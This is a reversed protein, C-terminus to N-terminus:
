AAKRFLLLSQVANAPDASMVVFNAMTMPFWFDTTDLEPHVILVIRKGQAHAFGIEAITGYASAFDLGLYAVFLDCAAIGDTAKQRVRYRFSNPVTDAPGVYQSLSRGSGEVQACISPFAGHMNGRHSCGHDCAIFFPGVYKDGSSMTLTSLSEWVVLSSASSRLSSGVFLDHRWDNQSIKGALYVKM